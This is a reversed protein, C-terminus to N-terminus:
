CSTSHQLYFDGPGVYNAGLLSLFYPQIKRIGRRDDEAAPHGKVEADKGLNTSTSREMVM